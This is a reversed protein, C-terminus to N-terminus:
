HVKRHWKTCSSFQAVHPNFVLRMKCNLDTIAKHGDENSRSLSRAEENDLLLLQVLLLPLVCAVEQDVEDAGAGVRNAAVVASRESKRASL